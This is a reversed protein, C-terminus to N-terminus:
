TIVCQSTANVREGIQHVRNRIFLREHKGDVIDMPSVRLRILNEGSEKSTQSIRM